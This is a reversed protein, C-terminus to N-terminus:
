LLSYRLTRLFSIINGDKSKSKTKKNRAKPPPLFIMIM